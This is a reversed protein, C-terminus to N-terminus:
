EQLTSCTKSSLDASEQECAGQQIAPVLQLSHCSDMRTTIAQYVDQRLSIMTIPPNPTQFSTALSKEEKVIRPDYTHEFLLEDTLTL